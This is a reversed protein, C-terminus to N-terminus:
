RRRDLLKIGSYKLVDVVKFKIILKCSGHCLFLLVFFKSFDM